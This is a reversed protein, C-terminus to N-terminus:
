NPGFGSEQDPPYPAPQVQAITREGIEVRTRGTRGRPGHPLRIVKANNVAAHRAPLILAANTLTAMVDHRKQFEGTLVARPAPRFIRPGARPRCQLRPRRHTSLRVNLEVLQE